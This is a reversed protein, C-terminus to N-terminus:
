KEGGDVESETEETENASTEEEDRLLEGIEQLERRRRDDAEKRKQRNHRREREERVGRVVYWLGVMMSLIWMGGLICLPLYKWQYVVKIHHPGQINTLTYSSFNEQSIEELEEGDVYIHAIEYDKEPEFEVTYNEDRYVKKNTPTITGHEVSTSITYSPIEKYVVQISHESQVNVFTYSDGYSQPDAIEEGDVIIKDIEYHLDPTFNIKGDKDRRVEHSEDISGNVVSTTIMFKPIEKFIVELTHNESIQGFTYSDPYQSADIEQGDIFIQGMEYDEDPVYNVTFDTNYDVSKQSDSITGNEVSTTIKFATAVEGSYFAIRNPKTLANAVMIKNPGFECLSEPEIYSGDQGITLEYTGLLTGQSISYVQVYNQHGNRVFCLSILYDGSVCCDQFGIGDPRVADFVQTVQTFGTDMVVFQYETDIGVQLVYQNTDESYGVAIIRNESVKRTYKLQLTSGDVVYVLGLNDQNVPTGGVIIIENTQPNYTMGNGHEYDTETIHKAYSFQPVENGNEDYANKYFAVLTDPAGDENANELCVIYNDTMCMSQLWGSEQVVTSEGNYQWALDQFVTSEKIAGQVPLIQLVTIALLLIVAAIRVFPQRVGVNKKKDRILSVSKKRSNYSM